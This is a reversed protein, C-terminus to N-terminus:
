ESPLNGTSLSVSFLHHVPTCLSTACNKLVKPGICDIGMAKSPDLSSLADFVDAITVAISSLSSHSQSCGVLPPQM